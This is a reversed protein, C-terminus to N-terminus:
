ADDLSSFNSILYYTDVYKPTAATDVKTADFTTDDSLKTVGKQTFGADKVSIDPTSTGSAVEIPDVGTVNTVTGGGAQSIADNTTKLQDATVVVGSAGTSVDGVTALTVVGVQTTSADKVNVVPTAADGTVFIPDAGDVSEVGIDGTQGPIVDWAAGDWIARATPEVTGTYGTGWAWTGSNIASNLWLDGTNPSSPTDNVDTMNAAGKYTVGPQAGLYDSLQQVSLKCVPKDGTMKQVVFVDASELAM